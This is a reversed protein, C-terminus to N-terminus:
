VAGGLLTKKDAVGITIGVSAFGAIVANIIATNVQSSNDTGNVICDWAILYHTADDIAQGSIKVKGADAVDFTQTVAVFNPM